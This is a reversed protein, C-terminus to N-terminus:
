HPFLNPAQSHPPSSLLPDPFLRYNEPVMDVNRNVDTGMTSHLLVYPVTRAKGLSPTCHPRGGGRPTSSITVDTMRCSAVRRFLAGRHLLSVKDLLYTTSLAEWSDGSVFM